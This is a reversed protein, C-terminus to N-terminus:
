EWIPYLGVLSHFSSSTNQSGSPALWMAPLVAGPRSAMAGAAFGAGLAAAAGTGGGCVGGGGGVSPTKGSPLFTLNEGLRSGRSTKASQSIVGLFGQNVRAIALRAQYQSMPRPTILSGSSM